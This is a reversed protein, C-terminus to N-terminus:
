SSRSGFRGGSYLIYCWYYVRASEWESWIAESINEERKKHRNGQIAYIHSDRMNAGIRCMIRYLRSWQGSHYDMCFVYLAFKFDTSM